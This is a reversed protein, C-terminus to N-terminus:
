SPSNTSGNGLPRATQRGISLYTWGISGMREPVYLNRGDVILRRNLRLAMEDFDPARFQQWETCVVLADAGDLAAYKDTSLVLEGGRDSYARLFEKAAVPDFAQVNAGAEWLAEILTRSPAQRIDDTNPKFALGWVAITRGQVEGLEEMLKEFLVRKQRLNVAEVANILPTDYGVGQASQALAQVDKPFCSGGYGAGPYIFHYGIRQDAGIGRRVQEIDAGLREALNAIENIFSIKTALMANAAYKTLEASRVDMYITREHNRVYPEYIQHMISRARETNAGVIIRDPRMFDSVASGEKLFEPNSVVEHEVKGYREVSDLAARVLECTGVPVTSKVVVIKSTDATEAITKAVALVHRLDAAGTEDSPTGVTIFQVEAGTIATLADTTFKLTGGALARHIVASLGPEYIPVDGKRLRDIKAQDVDVCTVEHGVDALCAGTVLGVYGSGFITLRM